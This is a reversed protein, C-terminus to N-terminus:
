AVLNRRGVDEQMEVGRMFPAKKFSVSVREHCKECCTFKHSSLVTPKCIRMRGENRKHWDEVFFRQLKPFATGSHNEYYRCGYVNKL